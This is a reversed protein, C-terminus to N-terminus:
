GCRCWPDQPIRPSTPSRDVELNKLRLIMEVEVWAILYPPQKFRCIKKERIRTDLDRAHLSIIEYVQGPELYPVQMLSNFGLM